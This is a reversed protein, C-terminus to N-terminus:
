VPALSFFQWSCRKNLSGQLYIYTQHYIGIQEPAALPPELSNLHIQVGDLADCLFDQSLNNVDDYFRTTPFGLYEEAPNSGRM